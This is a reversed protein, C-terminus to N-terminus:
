RISRRSQGLGLESTRVLGRWDEGPSLQLSPPSRRWKNFQAGSHIDMSGLYM